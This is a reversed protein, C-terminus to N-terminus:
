PGDKLVGFDYSITRYQFEQQLMLWM